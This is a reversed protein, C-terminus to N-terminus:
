FDKAALPKGTELFSKLSSTIKTWGTNIAAEVKDTLEEHIISLMMAEGVPTLKFTVKSIPEDEFHPYPSVDFTYSLSAYPEFSLITGKWGVSGNRGVLAIPAGVKWDSRIEKGNWYQKTFEPSTLGQWLQEATTNICINYTFTKM